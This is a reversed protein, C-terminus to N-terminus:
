CSCPVFFFFVGCLDAFSILLRPFFCHNEMELAGWREGELQEQWDLACCRIESGLSVVPSLHVDQMDGPGSASLTVRGGDGGRGRKAMVLEESGEEVGGEAVWEARSHVNRAACESRAIRISKRGVVVFVFRLRAVFVPFLFLPDRLFCQRRRFAPIGM